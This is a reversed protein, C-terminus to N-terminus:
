SNVAAYLWHPLPFTTDKRERKEGKQGRGKEMREGRNEKRGPFLSTNLLCITFHYPYLYWLLYTYRLRQNGEYHEELQAILSLVDLCVCNALVFIM